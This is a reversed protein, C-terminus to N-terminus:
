QIRLGSPQGAVRVDVVLTGPASDGWMNQAVVTLTHVGGTTFTVPQTTGTPSGIVAGDMRVVYNLVGDAVPNADWALSKTIPSQM